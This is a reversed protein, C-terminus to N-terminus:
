GFRSDPPPYLERFTFSEPSPGHQKLYELRDVAETVSPRLGAPIWWLAVYSDALREFWERRRRMVNMHPGSFVFERLSTLDEWVSLNIILWEDAYPRVATADGAETQFRWVFGPRNDALANIPGLNAVFDAMLPDELPALMREINVQALHYLSNSM